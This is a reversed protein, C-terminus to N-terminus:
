NLKEYNQKDAARKLAFHYSIFLFVTRIRITHIIRTHTIKSPQLKM